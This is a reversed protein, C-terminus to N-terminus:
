NRGDVPELRLDLLEHPGHIRLRTGVDKRDVSSPVPAPRLGALRGKVGLWLLKGGVLFKRCLRDLVEVLDRLVSIRISDEKHAHKLRFHLSKLVLLDVFGRRPVRSFFGNGIDLFSYLRIWVWAPRSFVLLLLLLLFVDTLGERSVWSIPSTRIASPLSGCGPGRM